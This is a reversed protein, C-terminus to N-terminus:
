LHLFYAWLNFAKSLTMRVTLLPALVKFISLKENFNTWRTRSLFPPPFLNVVIICTFSSYGVLKQEAM